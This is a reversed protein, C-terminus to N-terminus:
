AGYGEAVKVEDETVKMTTKWPFLSSDIGTETAVEYLIGEPGYDVM